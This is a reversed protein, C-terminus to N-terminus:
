ETEGVDLAGAALLAAAIADADLRYTGAAIAQRLAAVKARDVSPAAPSEDVTWRQVADGKGAATMM